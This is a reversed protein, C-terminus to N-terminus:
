AKSSANVPSTGNIAEYARYLANADGSMVARVDADDNNNIANALIVRAVLVDPPERKLASLAASIASHTRPTM